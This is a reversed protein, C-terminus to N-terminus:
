GAAGGAKGGEAMAQAGNLVVNLLAQRVLDADVKAVVPITLCTARSTCM